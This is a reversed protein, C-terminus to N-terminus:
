LGCNLTTDIAAREPGIEARYEDLSYFEIRDLADTVADADVDQAAKACRMYFNSQPNDDGGGELWPSALAEVNVVIVTGGKLLTLMLATALESLLQYSGYSSWMCPNRRPNPPPFFFDGPRHESDYDCDTQGYRITAESSHFVYVIKGARSPYAHPERIAEIVNDVNFLVNVVLRQPKCRRFISSGEYLDFVLNPLSVWRVITHAQNPIKPFRFALPALVNLDGTDYILRLTYRNPCKVYSLMDLNNLLLPGFIDVVRLLSLDADPSSAISVGSSFAPVKGDPCSVVSHYSMSSSLILRPGNLLKDALVRLQRSCARLRVLAAYPANYVILDLLHPYMQSDLM